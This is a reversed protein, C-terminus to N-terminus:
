PIVALKGWRVDGTSLEVKFYYVGVAVRDGKGNLGDWTIRQGGYTPYIGTPFYTGETVRDVLNMAFDYIEITVDAAEEIVFHFDLHDDNAHSFPVPFAYVEDPSTTSDIVYYPTQNTFDGMDIQIRVTRDATAVWLYEDSVEVGYVPTNELLLPQGESDQLPITDWPSELDAKFLLGANSAAFISDGNFAYNWAFDDRYTSEWVLSYGATDAGSGSEIVEGNEDVPLYQGVSIANTDPWYITSRNSVWVRSYPEDDVQQIAMAPIFDGFLSRLATLVNHIVIIDAKLPDLNPRTIRWTEGRDLSRAFGDSSGVLMTDGYIKFATIDDSDLSDVRVQSRIDTIEYIEGPRSGPNSGTSTIRIGADGAVYATDGHFDIDHTTVGRQYSRWMPLGPHEPNGRYVVKIGSGIDVPENITWYVTSDATSDPHSKFEQISIGLVRAGSTDGDMMPIKALSDIDGVASLYLKVLGTDTGVFLTDHYSTVANVNNYANDELSDILIQEWTSGTDRSMWLHDRRAAAYLRGGMDAYDSVYDMTLQSNISTLSSYTDGNDDSVVVQPSAFIVPDVPEATVFLRGGFHHLEIAEVWGTIVIPHLDDAFKSVYPGGTVLGRTLGRHGGYFVYDTDGCDFCREIDYIVRSALKEALPAYVYQFIGGATGTWLMLTDGHSSDAACSFYRNRESPLGASYFQISDGTSPFIRRWNVGNDNSALLGGAFATFFVWDDHGTIDFVTRFGGWVSSINQGTVSFDIQNWTFGGDDSYSVGDSFSFVADDVLESRGTGVWMRSGSSYMASVIDSTLGNASNYSAWTNGKDSTFLLGEGTSLWVAGDHVIIDTAANSTYGSDALGHTKPLLTQASPQTTTVVLLLLSTLLLKMTRIV